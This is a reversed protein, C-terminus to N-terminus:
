SLMRLEVIFPAAFFYLLCALLVLNVIIGAVAKTKNRHGILAIICLVAGLIFMIPSLGLALLILRDMRLMSNITGGAFSLLILLVIVSISYFALM